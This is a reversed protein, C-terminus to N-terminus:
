DRDPDVPHATTWEVLDDLDDRGPTAELIALDHEAAVRREERALARAVVEARSRAVGDAVLRDVFAVMEEPIRVAIQVNV